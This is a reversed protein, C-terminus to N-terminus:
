SFDIPCNRVADRLAQILLAYVRAHVFVKYKDRVRRLVKTICRDKHAQNDCDTSQNRSLCPM